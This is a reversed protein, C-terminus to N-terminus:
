FLAPVLLIALGVAAPAGLILIPWNLWSRDPVARASPPVRVPWQGLEAAAELQTVSLPVRLGYCPRPRFPWEPRHLQREDLHHLGGDLGTTAVGFETAFAALFETAANGDLGLAPLLDAQDARSLRRGARGEIWGLVRDRTMGM